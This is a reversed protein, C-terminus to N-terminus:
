LTRSPREAGSPSGCAHGAARMAQRKQHPGKPMRDENVAAPEPTRATASIPRDTRTAPLRVLTTAAPRDRYPEKGRAAPVPTPAGVGRRLRLLVDSARHILQTEEETAGQQVAAELRDLHRQLPTVSVHDALARGLHEVLETRDVPTDAMVTVLGPVVTAEDTPRRAGIPVTHSRRHRIETVAATSLGERTLQVHDATFDYWDIAGDSSQTGIQAKRQSGDTVCRVRHVYGQSRLLRPDPEVGPGFVTTANLPDCASLASDDLVFLLPEHGQPEATVQGGLRLEGAPDQLIRTEGRIDLRALWDAVAAKIYLHDASGSGSIRGNTRRCPSDPADPDPLHAFHCIKETCLRTTLRGGCGGLWLGCWFTRDGHARRFVELGAAEAPLEVPDESEANDLVATQVRRPDRVM